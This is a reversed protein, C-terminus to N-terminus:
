WYPWWCYVKNTSVFFTFYFWYKLGITLNGEKPDQIQVYQNGTYNRITASRFWYCTEILLGALLSAKKISSMLVSASSCQTLWDIFPKESNSPKDELRIYSIKWLKMKSPVFFIKIEMFRCQAIPSALTFLM